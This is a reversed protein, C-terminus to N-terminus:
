RVRGPMKPVAFGEGVKVTRMATMSPQLMLELIMIGAALACTQFVPDEVSLVATDALMAIEERDGGNGTSSGSFARVVRLGRM